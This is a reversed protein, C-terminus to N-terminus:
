PVKDMSTIGTLISGTSLLTDLYDPTIEADAQPGWPNLTQLYVKGAGDFMKGRAVVAVAHRGGAAPEADYVKPTSLLPVYLDLVGAGGADVLSLAESYSKCYIWRCKYVVKSDIDAPIPPFFIIWDRYDNPRVFGYIRGAECTGVQLVGRLPTKFPVQLVDFARNHLYASSFSETDGWQRWAVTQAVMVSGVPSCDATVFRQIPYRIVSRLPPEDALALGNLLLLATIITRLYLM